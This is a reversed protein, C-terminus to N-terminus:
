GSAMLAPAVETHRGPHVGGILSQALQLDAKFIDRLGPEDNRRLLYSPHYTGVLRMRPSLNRVQGRVDKMRIPAGFISRLASAGLAVIVEPQILEIEKRLWWKCKDIEDATPNQHLRRKGRPKFKFHKVANTLYVSDAEVGIEGLVNRLVQGAPGVFPKGELDECDGPQEGVIMMRANSPGCGPVVQTASCHLSCARCGRLGEQLSVMDTIDNKAISPGDQTTERHRMMAPVPVTADAEIMASQRSRADRILEPILSAEPLNKWYKKPMESQMASTKLRAPNFISAYYRKWVDELEDGTQEAPKAVGESFSLDTGQWMARGYPTLIAWDMSAFRKVFFPATHRVIHHTPEFWSVFRERGDESEGVKRFRVFATMKHADRRIEKALSMVKCVLPDAVKRLLHRDEQLRCLLTYLVSFRETDSHCVVQKALQVFARPVVAPRRSVSRERSKKRELAFLSGTACGAVCWSVEPPDLGECWADKASARWGDFDAHHELEIMRM